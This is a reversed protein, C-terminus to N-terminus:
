VRDDQRAASPDATAKRFKRMPPSQGAVLNFVTRRVTRSTCRRSAAITASSSHPQRAILFRLDKIASLMTKM